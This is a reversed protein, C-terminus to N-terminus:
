RFVGMRQSALTLSDIVRVINDFRFDNKIVLSPQSLPQRTQVTRVGMLGGTPPTILAYSSSTLTAGVIKTISVTQTVQSLADGLLNWGIAPVLAGIYDGINLFWDAVFSYPILEWPLTIIGKPSFGIDFAQSSEFDDLAMARLRISATSNVVFDVKLIGLYTSYSYQRTSSVAGNARTTQRRRDHLKKLGEAINAIDSVIPRLGYRYQLWLSSAGSVLVGAKRKVGAVGEVKDLFNHLRGLPRHFMGVAQDYEALTEFLNSESRGRESYVRTSLERRLPEIQTEDDIGPLIEPVSFGGVSAKRAIAVCLNGVFQYEPFFVPASCSQFATNRILYGTGGLDSYQDVRRMVPNFFVEGKAVRQRFGPVVWDDMLRYSGVNLSGVYGTDSWNPAACSTQRGQEKVTITTLENSERHRPFPSTRKTKLVMISLGDSVLLTLIREFLPYAM